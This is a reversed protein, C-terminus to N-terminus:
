NQPSLDGFVKEYHSALAAFTIPGTILLGVLCVFLGLINLVGCVVILWFTMWWHKNVVRRSLQLAPWFKLGKDLALPMAFMWCVQIYTMVVIFVLLVLGFGILLGPGVSSVSGGSRHASVVAPITLAAAIGIFFVFGMAVLSPILQVMFLQWFRPGFGSFADAIGVQEGRGLKVYFFWLGAALPGTFILALVVSLYPIINIAVLALYVLVSAGIMIGANAKFIRGGTALCNGIDVQYDRDLLDAETKGGPSARLSAGERLRQFFIPKCNACIYADGHRIMDDLAFLKGCEACVAGPTQVSHWTAQVTPAQAAAGGAPRAQRSPLWDTMGERWVLTDDTIKGARRLEEFQEDTVPGAPQGGDVYYWNM